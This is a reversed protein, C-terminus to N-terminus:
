QLACQFSRLVTLHKALVTIGKKHILAAPHNCLVMQGLQTIAEKTKISTHARPNDHQLLMKCLNRSPFAEVNKEAHQYICRLKTGRLMVEFFIVGECNRFVKIMMQVVPPSLKFKKKQPSDSHHWIMSKRKMQPEFHHVWTEDTM